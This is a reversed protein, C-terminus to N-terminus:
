PTTTEGLDAREGSWYWTGWRGRRIYNRELHRESGAGVEAGVLNDFEEAGAAHALYIPRAVGAQASINGDLNKWSSEGFIALAQAAKFALGPGGGREVMGIDDGDVLTALV